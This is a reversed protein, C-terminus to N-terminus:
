PFLSFQYFFNPHSKQNRPRMWGCKCIRSVNVTKGSNEEATQGTYIEYILQKRSNPLRRNDFAPNHMM